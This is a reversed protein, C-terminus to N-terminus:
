DEYANTFKERRDIAETLSLCCKLPTTNLARIPNENVVPIQKGPRVRVGLVRYSKM